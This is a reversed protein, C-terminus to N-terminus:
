VTHYLQQKLQSALTLNHILKVNNSIILKHSLNIINGIILHPVKAQSPYYPINNFDTTNTSRHHHSLKLFQLIYTSTSSHGKVKLM